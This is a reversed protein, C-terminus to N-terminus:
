EGHLHQRAANALAENAATVASGQDHRMSGDLAQFAGGAERVILAIPAVDHIAVQPDLMVDLKGEAVLMHGQWDGLGRSYAVHQALRRFGQWGAEDHAVLHVSGFALAAEALTYLTRTKLPAPEAENPGQRFAGGERVAWWTTELAPAHVVGVELVGVLELAMLVAFADLGRIFNQTGDLPDLIWRRVQDGEAGYEEGLMGYEPTHQLLRERLMAESERDAATVPSEDEKHEVLLGDRRYYSLQLRGAEEAARRALTCHKHREEPSLSM